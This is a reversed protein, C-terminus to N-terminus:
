TPEGNKNTKEDFDCFFSRIAKEYGWPNEFYSMCHDAGPVILLRRPGRCAKYNEYTMEVPVFHDDSGHIFLVPITSELLADVTSFDGPGMQIAKRCMDDAIRRHLSYSIKLNSEMVHKWIAHPSTYACDAIIGNVNDSIDLNAAMLVTSAGMSLGALYIPTDPLTEKAWKIWEACDYREMLGFGMYNGGSLGQGRQEAYLVSCGNKHLFPAIPGFDQKWSSRWGHMAIVIRKPGKAPYFHGILPTGAYSEIEVTETDVEDLYAKGEELKKTFEEPEAYGRLTDRAKRMDPSDKAADRELAIQVMKKTLLYSSVAFGLAGAVVTGAAVLLRKETKKM